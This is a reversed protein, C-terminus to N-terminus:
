PSWRTLLVWVLTGFIWSVFVQFLISGWTILREDLVEFAHYRTMPMKSVLLLEPLCTRHDATLRTDRLCSVAPAICRQTLDFWHSLYWSQDVHPLLLPLQLWSCLLSSEGCRWTSYYSLKCQNSLEVGPHYKICSVHWRYTSAFVASMASQMIHVDHNSDQVELSSYHPSVPEHLAMILRVLDVRLCM